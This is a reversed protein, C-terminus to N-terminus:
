LMGYIKNLFRSFAVRHNGYKGFDYYCYSADQNHMVKYLDNKQHLIHMDISEFLHALEEANVFPVVDDQYSHFLYIPAKPLSQINETMSSKKMAQYLRATIPNDKDMAQPTLFRDIQGIGMIHRLEMISYKKSNIWEDYQQLLTDKFLKSLDLHLNYSVNMGQVIMPIAPAIGTYNTAIAHDYTATIDYPGAGVYNILIPLEKKYRKEILQQVALTASGGQSYGMLIISDNLPAHNIDKLYKKAALAMDVVCRATSNPHLYPHPKRTSAGFGIYDPVVIAYGKNALLGELPFTQSPMEHNASLTYHSVLIIHKIPKKRPMVIVGSCTLTDGYLGRTRYSCPIQVLQKHTLGNLVDRILTIKDDENKWEKSLEGMQQSLTHSKAARSKNTANENTSDVHSLVQQRLAKSLSDTAPLSNLNVYYGGICPTSLFLNFLVISLFLRKM